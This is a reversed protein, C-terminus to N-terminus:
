KGKPAALARRFWSKPNARICFFLDLILTALILACLAKGAVLGAELFSHNKEYGSFAAVGLIALISLTTTVASFFSKM